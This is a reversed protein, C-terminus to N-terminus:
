RTKECLTDAIRRLEFAIASLVYFYAERMNDEYSRRLDVPGREEAEDLLVTAFTLFKQAEKLYDM